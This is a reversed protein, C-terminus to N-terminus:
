KPKEWARKQRRLDNALARLQERRKADPTSNAEQELQKARKELQDGKDIM